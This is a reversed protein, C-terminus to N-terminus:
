ASFGDDDGERYEIPGTEEEDDILFRVVADGRRASAIYASGYRTDFVDPTHWTLAGDGPMREEAMQQARPDTAIHHGESDSLFLEDAQRCDIRIELITAM